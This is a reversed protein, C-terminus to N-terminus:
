PHAREPQTTPQAIAPSAPRRDAIWAAQGRGVRPPRTFRIEDVLWAQNMNTFIYLMEYSDFSEEGVQKGTGIRLDRYRWSEKTSIRM